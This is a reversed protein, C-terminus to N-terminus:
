QTNEKFQRNISFTSIDYTTKGEKILQSLIEGIVISYKFGHGSFGTAIIINDNEPHSDIIFNKDPTKTIFCTEGKKFNRSVAPIIKKMFYILDEEDESYEGFEEKTDPEMPIESDNRGIKIGSGSINPFGYYKRKNFNFYFCPLNPPYFENGVAKFWGFTKRMTQLPLEINDLLRESWGGASIIVKSAFFSGRSTIVEVGNHISKISIVKTDYLTNVKNYHAILQRFALLIKTSMLVGSTAEFFSQYTNPVTFQPFRHEIQKASLSELPLSYRKAVSVSDAIFPANEEGALLTGSPYFLKENSQKELDSWLEQARLVLPVYQTGEASAHRILRTEGHHSGKSHPPTYMDIMLTELGTKGLYYGAASGIAGGGVVIVDYNKKM